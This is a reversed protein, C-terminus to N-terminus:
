SPRKSRYHDIASRLELAVQQPHVAETLARVVVFRHAGTKLLGEITENSVGGTVFFPRRATAVAYRLYDLGTGPRGPKTPTPVIPGVSVYDLDYQDSEDLEKHSHTSYGLLLRQRIEPVIADPPLDDQGVHVGDADCALAVDFRDNIFFPVRAEHCLAGVRKAAEFIERDTADKDRLQVVDVGGAICSAVFDMLDARIPTCLYLSAEQLVARKETIRWQSTM